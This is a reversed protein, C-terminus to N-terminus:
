GLGGDERRSDSFQSKTFHGDSLEAYNMRVAGSPM